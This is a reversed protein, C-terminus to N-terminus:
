EREIRRLMDEDGEVADRGDETLRVHTITSDATYQADIWGRRELWRAERAIDTLEGPYDERGMFIQWTTPNKMYAKYAAVMITGRAAAARAFMPPVKPHPREYPISFTGPEGHPTSEAEVVLRGRIPARGIADPRVLGVAECQDAAAQYPVGVKSSVSADPRILKEALPVLSTNVPAGPVDVSWQLGASKVLVACAGINHITVGHQEHQTGLTAAQGGFALYLQPARAADRDALAAKALAELAPSPAHEPFHKAFRVPDNALTDTIDGWFLVEIGCKGDLQRQGSLKRLDDQLKGDRDFGLCAVFVQVDEFHGDMAALDAQLKKLAGKEQLTSQWVLDPSSQDLGDIGHQAQGSRGFRILSRGPYRLTLADTAINDFENDSKPIPLKGTARTVVACQLRAPHGGQM